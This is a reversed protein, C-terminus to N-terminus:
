KNNEEVEARRHAIEAEDRADKALRWTVYAAKKSTRAARTIQDLIKWVEHLEQVKTLTVEVIKDYRNM